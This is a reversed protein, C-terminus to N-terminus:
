TLNKKQNSHSDSTSSAGGGASIMGHYPIFGFLLLYNLLSLFNRTFWPLSYILTLEFSHLTIQIFKLKTLCTQQNWLSNLEALQYTQTIGHIAKLM